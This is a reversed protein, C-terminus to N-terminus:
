LGCKCNHPWNNVKFGKDNVEQWSVDM